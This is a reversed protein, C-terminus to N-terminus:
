MVDIAKEYGSLNEYMQIIGFRQVIGSMTVGFRCRLAGANEVLENAFEPMYSLAKQRNEPACKAATIIIYNIM